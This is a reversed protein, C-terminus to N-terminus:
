WDSYKGVPTFVQIEWSGDKGSKTMYTRNDWSTKVKIRTDFNAKGWLKVKTQQQLVMGTALVSPLQIKAGVATVFFLLGIIFRIRKGMTDFLM